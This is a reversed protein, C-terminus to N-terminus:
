FFKSPVFPCFFRLFFAKTCNITNFVNMIFTHLFSTFYLNEKLEVSENEKAGKFIKYKEDYEIEM